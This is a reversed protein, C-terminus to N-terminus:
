KNIIEKWIVNADKLEDKDIIRYEEHWSIKPNGCHNTPNKYITIGTLRLIEEWSFKYIREVIKGYKDFCFCIMDEFIKEWEREFGAFPWCREISNYRRGQVQHYLGTKPDYCDIPTGYNDYKENLNEWEYLKCALEQHNNGKAIDSNPNLNGIRHNSLSKIINHDSNPDYKRWCKRCDWKGTESGDKDREMFPYRNNDFSIGCRYCINTGNYKKPIKNRIYIEELDKLEDKGPNMNVINGNEDIIIWRPKRDVFRCSKYETM